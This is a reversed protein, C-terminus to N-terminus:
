EVDLPIFNYNNISDIIFQSDNYSLIKHKILTPIINHIIYDYEKTYHIINTRNIEDQVEQKTLHRDYRKFQFNILSYLYTYNDCYACFWKHNLNDTFLTFGASLLTQEYDM